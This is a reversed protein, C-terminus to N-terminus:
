GDHLYLVSYRRASAADYGPPLYVIVDRDHDLFDSHFAEHHRIDGTLTHEPDDTPADSSSDNMRDSVTPLSPALSSRALYPARCNGPEALAPAGERARARGDITGERTRCSRGM